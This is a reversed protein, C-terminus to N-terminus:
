YRNLALLILTDLMAGEITLQDNVPAYEDADAADNVFEDYDSDTTHPDAILRAYEAIHAEVNANM